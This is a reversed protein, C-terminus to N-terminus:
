KSPVLKVTCSSITLEVGESFEANKYESISFGDTATSFIENLGGEYMNSSSVNGNGSVAVVDYVGAPFDTGAVYNGSSLEKEETLANERAEMASVEAADSSISIVVTGGVNLSVGKKLKAGSFDAVSLGEEPESSMVENLGGSYMNSSSVNGSGSVATIKYTGAPFDVGAEYHGASFETTYAETKVEEKEKKEDGSEKTTVTNEAKKGSDTDKDSGSNGAGIVGAVVIVIIVWFWVRKYIPKKKEM